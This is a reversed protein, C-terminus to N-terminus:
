APVEVLRTRGIRRLHAEYSARAADLPEDELLHSLGHLAGRGALRGSLHSAWEDAVRLSSGAVFVNPVTTELDATVEPRFGGDAPDHVLKCGAQQVLEVAPHRGTALVVADCPIRGDGLVLARPELRGDVAKVKAGWRVPVGRGRVEELLSSVRRPEPGEDIVARVRAGCAQLDRALLLGQRTAGVIAVDDGPLVGFENLLRLAGDALMVGARDSGPFPRYADIAGTALILSRTEVEILRTRTAAALRNGDYIGMLQAGPIIRVGQHELKTTQLGIWEKGDRNPADPATALFPTPLRNLRGGVREDRELLTVHLGTSSAAEAAALGGPGGGVVCVDTTLTEHRFSQQVPTRPARGFGAMARIVRTFIPKLFTPRIFARHADLYNPFAVDAAALVDYEASPLANQDQVWTLPECRTECTRVNPVGNVSMFCHTCQGVGCFYGRARHYRMSRSLVRRNSAYLAVAVPEEAHGEARRGNRRFEVLPGRRITTLPHNELRRPPM